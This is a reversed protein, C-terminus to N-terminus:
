TSNPRKTDNNTKMGEKALGMFESAVSFTEVFVSLYVPLLEQHRGTNNCTGFTFSLASERNPEGGANISATLM